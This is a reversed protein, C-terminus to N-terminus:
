HEFGAKVNAAEIRIHGDSGAIIRPQLIPKGSKMDYKLGTEEDVEVGSFFKIDKGSKGYLEENTRILKVIPHNTLYNDVNTGLKNNCEECVRKTILKKNGLAEPIIHEESEDKNERCIICKM